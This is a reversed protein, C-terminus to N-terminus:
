IDCWIGGGVSKAFDERSNEGGAPAERASGWPGPRLSNTLSNNIEKRFNDEHGGLSGLVTARSEGM